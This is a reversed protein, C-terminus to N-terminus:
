CAWYVLCTCFIAKRSDLTRLTTSLQGWIHMLKANGFDICDRLVRASYQWILYSQEAVFTCSSQGSVATDELDVPLTLTSPVAMSLLTAIWVGLWCNMRSVVLETSVAPALAFSRKERILREDLLASSVGSTCWNPCSGAANGFDICDRLGQASCERIWREELLEARGWFTCSSQGSVVTDELDVLLALMSALPVAMSLLAAIWAALLLAVVACSFRILSVELPPTAEAAASLKM